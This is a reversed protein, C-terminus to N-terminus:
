RSGWARSVPERPSRMRVLISQADGGAPRLVRLRDGVVLRRDRQQGLPEVDGGLHRVAGRGASRRELRAALRASRRSGRHQRHAAELSERGLQAVAADALSRDLAAGQRALRVEVGDHPGLSLALAALLRRRLGGPRVRRDRPRRHDRRLSGESCASSAKALTVAFRPQSWSASCITKAWVWWGSASTRQASRGACASSSCRSRSRRARDRRM